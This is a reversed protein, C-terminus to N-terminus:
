NILNRFINLLSDYWSTIITTKTFPTNINLKMMKKTSFWAIELYKWQFLTLIRFSFKKFSGWIRCGNQTAEGEIDTNQLKTSIQFIITCNKM